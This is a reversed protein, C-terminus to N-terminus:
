CFTLLDRNTQLLKVTDLLRRDHEEMRKTIHFYVDRTTHGDSHGLHRSITELPSYEPAASGGKRHRTLWTDPLFQAVETAIVQTSWLSGE